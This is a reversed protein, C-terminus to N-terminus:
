PVETRSDSNRKYKSYQNAAWLGGFLPVLTLVQLSFLVPLLLKAQDSLGAFFLGVMIGLLGAQVHTSIIAVVIATIGIIKQKHASGKSM